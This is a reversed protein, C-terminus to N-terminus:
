ASIEVWIENAAMPKSQVSLASYLISYVYNNWQKVSIQGSGILTTLRTFLDSNVLVKMKEYPQLKEKVEKPARDFYHEMFLTWNMFSYKKNLEDVTLPALDKQAEEARSSGDCVTEQILSYVYNFDQYYAMSAWEEINPAEAETENGSESGIPGPNGGENALFGGVIGSAPSHIASFLILTLSHQRDV